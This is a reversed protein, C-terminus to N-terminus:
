IISISVVFIIKGWERFQTETELNKYKNNKLKVSEDRYNVEQSIYHIIKHTGRKMIKM